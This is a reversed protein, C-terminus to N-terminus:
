SCRLATIRGADDLEVNLRDPRYDMTVAMGPKIVRIANAGSEKRIAALNDDSAPKGIYAGLRDAGCGPEGATPPPPPSPRAAEDGACASLALIAATLSCRISNRAFAHM